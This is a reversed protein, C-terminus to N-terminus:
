TISYSELQVISFKPTQYITGQYTSACLIEEELNEITIGEEIKTSDTPFLGPSYVKLFGSKVSIQASLQTSTTTSISTASADESAGTGHEANLRIPDLM